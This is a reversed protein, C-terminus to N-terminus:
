GKKRKRKAHPTRFIYMYKFDNMYELFHLFITFYSKEVTHYCMLAYPLESKIIDFYMYTYTCTITCAVIEKAMSDIFICTCQVHVHVHVHLIAWM